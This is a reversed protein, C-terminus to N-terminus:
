LIDASLAFQILYCDGDIKALKKDNGGFATTPNEPLARNLRRRCAQGSRLRLPSATPLVLKDNRALRLRARCDGFYDIILRFTRLKRLDKIVKTGLSTCKAPWKNLRM